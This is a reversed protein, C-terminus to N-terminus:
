NRDSSLIIELLKTVPALRVHGAKPLVCHCIVQSIKGPFSTWAIVLLCYQNSFMFLCVFKLIIYYTHTCVACGSVANKIIQCM